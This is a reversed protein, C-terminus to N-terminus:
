SEDAKRESGHRLVKFVEDGEYESSLPGFHLIGYTFWPHTHLAITNGHILYLYPWFFRVAHWLSTKWWDFMRVASLMM